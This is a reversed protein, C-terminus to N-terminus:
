IKDKPHYKYFLRSITVGLQRAVEQQVVPLTVRWDRDMRSHPLELEIKGPDNWRDFEGEPFVRSANAVDIVKVRAVVKPRIMDITRQWDVEEVYVNIVQDVGLRRGLADVALTDFDEGMEGRLQEVERTPTVSAISTKNLLSHRAAEAVSNAMRRDGLKQLPDNVVIAFTANRPLEHRPAVSQDSSCGTLLATFLLLCACPLLAAARPLRNFTLIAFRRHM